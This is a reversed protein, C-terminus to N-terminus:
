NLNKIETLDKKYKLNHSNRNVKEWLTTNQTKTKSIVDIKTGIKPTSKSLTQNDKERFIM